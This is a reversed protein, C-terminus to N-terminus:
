QTSTYSIFELASRDLLSNCCECDAPTEYQFCYVYDKDGYKGKHWEIQGKSQVTKIPETDKYVAKLCNYHIEAFEDDHRSDYEVEYNWNLDAGVVSEYFKGKAENRSEMLKLFEDARQSANGWDYVHVDIESVGDDIFVNASGEWYTTLESSPPFYLEYGCEVNRYLRLKENCWAPTSCGISLCVLLCIFALVMALLLKRFV